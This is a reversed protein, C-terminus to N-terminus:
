DSLPIERVKNGTVTYAASSKGCFYIVFAPNKLTIDRPKESRIEDSRIKGPPRIDIVVASPIRLSFTEVKRTRYGGKGDNIFLALIFDADRFQRGADLTVQDAIHSVLLVAADELGDGNFDARVFGPSSSSNCELDDVQDPRLITAGPSFKNIAELLSKEVRVPEGGWGINSNVFFVAIGLLLPSFVTKRVSQVLHMQM